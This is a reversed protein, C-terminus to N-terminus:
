RRASRRRAARGRSRRWCGRLCARLDGPDPKGAGVEGSIAVADFADHLGAMNLKRRHYPADNNTIVGLRLSRARLADLCDLVDDFLVFSRNLATFRAQEFAAAPGADADRGLVRVFAATREIRM